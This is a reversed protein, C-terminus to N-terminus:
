FPFDGIGAQKEHSTKRQCAEGDASAHAWQPPDREILEMRGMPEMRSMPEM